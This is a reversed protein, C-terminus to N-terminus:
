DPDQSGCTRGFQPGLCKKPTGFDQHGEALFLTHKLNHSFSLLWSPILISAYAFSRGVFAKELATVNMGPCSSQYHFLVRELPKRM